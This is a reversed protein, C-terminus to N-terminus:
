EIPPPSEQLKAGLADESLPESLSRWLEPRFTKLWDMCTGFAVRRLWSPFKAPERLQGLNTYARIFTEQAMDQAESWDGLLSYALGYVHGQDRRVLQGYADADGSHLVRQVLEADTSQGM